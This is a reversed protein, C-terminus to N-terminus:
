EKKCKSMKTKKSNAKTDLQNVNYRMKWQLKSWGLAELCVGTHGRLKEVHEPGHFMLGDAGNVM